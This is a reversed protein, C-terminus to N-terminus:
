SEKVAAFVEKWDIKDFNIKSGDKLKAKNALIAKKLEEPTKAAQALKYLSETNDIGLQLLFQSDESAEIFFEKFSKFSQTTDM